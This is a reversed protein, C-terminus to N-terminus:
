GWVMAAKIKPTEKFLPKEGWIMWIKIPTEMIKVMWKLPVVIKPFVWNATGNEIWM